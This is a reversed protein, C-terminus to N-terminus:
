HLHTLIKTVKQLLQQYANQDKMPCEKEMELQKRILVSDCM